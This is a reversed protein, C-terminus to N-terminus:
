ALQLPLKSQVLFENPTLNNLAEHPRVENYQILWQYAIERAQNISDFVYYSLVEYRFSRNFREIYSNQTPKGPQIFKLQVHHKEAWTALTFSIFEPGNDVRIAQPYGREAVIRELIRVVREATLSFDIDIALAERNFDDVINLSRFRRGSYLADSMFDMSWCQNAAAVVTLPQPARSPLRKRTRRKLNFGLACYVRYVRKHNWPHGQKRLLPFYKGFGLRPHQEALRNLADIVEGDQSPQPIYRYVSRSLKVLTCAKRASLQHQERL